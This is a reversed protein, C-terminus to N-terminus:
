KASNIMLYRQNGCIQLRIKYNAITLGLEMGLDFDWIRFGFDFPFPSPSVNYDMVGGGMVKRVQFTLRTIPFSWGHGEM